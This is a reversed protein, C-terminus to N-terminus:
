GQWLVDAEGQRSYALVLARHSTQTESYNHRVALVLVTGGDRDACAVDSIAAGDPGGDDGLLREWVVDLGDSTRVAVGPGPSSPGGYPPTYAEAIRGAGPCFAIDTAMGDGGGYAIIRGMGDLSVMRGPGHTTGIVVAPPAKGSPPPLPQGARILVDPDAQECLSSLWRGDEHRLLLGTREGVPTELGCSAGSASSWVDITGSPIDGKVAREVLFRYRVLTASSFGDGTSQPDDRSVMRGVFAGAAEPLRERVDYVACSCAKAHPLSPAVLAAATLLLVLLIRRM